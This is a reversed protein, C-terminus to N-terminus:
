YRACGRAAAASHCARQAARGRLLAWLAPAAVLAASLLAGSVGVFSLLTPVTKPLPEDRRPHVETM